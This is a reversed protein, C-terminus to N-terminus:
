TNSLNVEVGSEVRFIQECIRYLDGERPDASGQFPVMAISHSRVDHVLTLSLRAEVLEAPAFPLAAVEGKDKRYIINYPAREEKQVFTKIVKVAFGM